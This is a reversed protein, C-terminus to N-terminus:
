GRTRRQRRCAWLLAGGALMLSVSAPEPVPTMLFATTVGNYIGTGVIQGADNIGIANTIMDWGAMNIVEGNLSFAQGGSYIWIGFGSSDVVRGVVDGHSNIASATVGAEDSLHLGSLDFAQVTNDALVMFPTEEFTHGAYGIGVGASNVATMHGAVPTGSASDIVTVTPSSLDASLLVKTPSDGIYGDGVIHGADNIGYFFSESQNSSNDLTGYDIKGTTTNYTFARNATGDGYQANGVVVGNNNIAYAQGSGQAGFAGIFVPTGDAQWLMPQSKFSDDTQAYGVIQGANNIATGWTHTYIGANPGSNMTTGGLFHMQGSSYVYAQELGNVIAYGTVQGSANVGYAYSADYGTAPTLATITYGSPGAQAPASLGLLGVAAAAVFWMSKLAHFKLIGIEQQHEFM